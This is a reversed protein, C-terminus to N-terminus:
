LKVRRGDCLVNLFPYGDWDLDNEDHPHKAYELGCAFCVTNGAARFYDSDPETSGRLSNALKVLWAMFTVWIIMKSWFLYTDM